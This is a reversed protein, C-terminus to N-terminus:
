DGREDRAERKRDDFRSAIAQVRAEEGKQYM